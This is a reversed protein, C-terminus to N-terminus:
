GFLYTLLGLKNPRRSYTCLQFAAILADRGWRERLGDMMGQLAGGKWIGKAIWMSSSSMADVDPGSTSYLDLIPPPWFFQTEAYVLFDNGVYKYSGKVDELLCAGEERRAWTIFYDAIPGGNEFPTRQPLRGPLFGKGVLSALQEFADSGGRLSHFVGMVRGGGIHSRMEEYFAHNFSGGDAFTLGMTSTLVIEKLDYNCHGIWIMGCSLLMKLGPREQETMAEFATRGEELDVEMFEFEPGDDTTKAKKQEKGEATSKTRELSRKKNARNAAAAANASHSMIILFKSNFPELHCPYHHVYCPVLFRWLILM